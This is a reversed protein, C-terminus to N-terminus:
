VGLIVGIGVTYLYFSRIVSLGDGIGERLVVRLDLNVGASHRM